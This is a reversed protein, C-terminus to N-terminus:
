RTLVAAYGAGNLANLASQAHAKSARGAHIEIRSVQAGDVKSRTLDDVVIADNVRVLRGKRDLERHLYLVGGDTHVNSPVHDLTDAIHAKRASVSADTFHLTCRFTTTTM